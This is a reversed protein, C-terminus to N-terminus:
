GLAVQEGLPRSDAFSASMIPPALAPADFEDTRQYFFEAIRVVAAASSRASAIARLMSARVRAGYPIRVSGSGRM